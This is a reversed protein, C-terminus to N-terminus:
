GPADSGTDVNAPRSIIYSLVGIFPLFIIFVCWMAKAFGHHDRRRFNDIFCYIVIVWWLILGAFILMTWFINLLPYTYAIM